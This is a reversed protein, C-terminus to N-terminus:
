ENSKSFKALLIDTNEILKHLDSLTSKEKLKTPIKSEQNLAKELFDDLELLREEDKASLSIDKSKKIITNFESQVDSIKSKYHQIQNKVRELFTIKVNDEKTMLGKIYVINVDSSKAVAQDDHSTMVFCPFGSKKMLIEEILEVGTYTIVPMYETLQYDSIIADVKETLIEEIFKDFNEIPLKAVVDFQKNTDQKYVYRQFRRIDAEVEDIFLIRYM